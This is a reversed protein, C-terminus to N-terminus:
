ARRYIAPRKREEGSDVVIIHGSERLAELADRLPKGYTKCKDSLESHTITKPKPPMARLVRDIDNLQERRGVTLPQAQKSALLALLDVVCRKVVSAAWNVCATDIVPKEFDRAIAALLANKEVHLGVRRWQTRTAADTAKNSVDDAYANVQGILEAAEQNCKVIQPSDPPLALCHKAFDLLGRPLPRLFRSPEARKRAIPSSVVLCRSMLGDTLLRPGCALAFQEPEATGYFTLHPRVIVGDPEDDGEGKGQGRRSMKRRRYTSKSRTYLTKLIPRAKMMPNIANESLARVFDDIEDACLFAAGGASFLTDELGEGSAIDDFLGPAGVDGYIADILTRGQEKGAGSTALMIYYENPYIELFGCRGIYRRGTFASVFAMGAFFDCVKNPYPSTAGSHEAFDDVVGGGLTLLDDPFPAISAEPAPAPKAEYDGAGAAAYAAIAQAKGVEGAMAAGKMADACEALKRSQAAAQVAILHGKLNHLALKATAVTEYCDRVYAAIQRGYDDGFLEKAKAQTALADACDGGGAVIQRILMLAKETAPAAYDGPEIKAKDIIALADAGVYAAAAVIGQESITIVRKRDEEKAMGLSLAAVEMEENM